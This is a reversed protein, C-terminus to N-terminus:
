PRWNAAHEAFPRAERDTHCLNPVEMPLQAATLGGAVPRSLRESACSRPLTECCCIAALHASWPLKHVHLEHTPEGVLGHLYGTRFRTVDTSLEYKFRQGQIEPIDTQETMQVSM